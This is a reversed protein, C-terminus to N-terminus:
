EVGGDSLADEGGGDGDQIYVTINVMVAVQTLEFVLCLTCSLGFCQLHHHHQLHPLPDRSNSWNMRLPGQVDASLKMAFM